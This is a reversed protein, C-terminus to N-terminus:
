VLKRVKSNKNIINPMSIIFRRYLNLEFTYYRFLDIKNQEYCIAANLCKVLSYYNFWPKNNYKITSVNKNTVTEIVPCQGNFRSDYVNHIYIHFEDQIHTMRNDM